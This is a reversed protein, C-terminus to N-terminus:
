GLVLAKTAIPLSSANFLAKGLDDDGDMRAVQIPKFAVLIDRANTLVACAFFHVIHQLDVALKQEQNERVVRAERVAEIGKLEVGPRLKDVVAAEGRSRCRVALFSVHAGHAVQVRPTFM